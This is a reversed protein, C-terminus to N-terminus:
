LFTSELHAKRARGNITGKRHARVTSSMTSWKDLRNGKQCVSQRLGERGGVETLTKGGQVVSEPM